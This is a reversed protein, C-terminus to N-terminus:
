LQIRGHPYKLTNSQGIIYQSSRQRGEEEQSILFSSVRVALLIGLGLDILYYTDRISGVYLPLCASSPEFSLVMLQFNKPVFDTDLNSASFMMSKIYIVIEEKM